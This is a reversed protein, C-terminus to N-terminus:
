LTTRRCQEPLDLSNIIKQLPIKEEHKQLGFIKPGNKV